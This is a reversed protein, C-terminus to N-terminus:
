VKFPFIVYIICSVIVCFLSTLLSMPHVEFFGPLPMEQDYKLELIFLLIYSHTNKYFDMIM